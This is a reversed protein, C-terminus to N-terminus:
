VGVFIEVREHQSPDHIEYDAEYRRDLPLEWIQQWARVLAQPQEGEAVRHAFRGGPVVLRELGDPAQADPPVRCGLFFTYPQTHDGEYDCYVAVIAGDLRGAIREPIGEGLFRQWHAGLKEAQDNSARTAIGLLTLDNRIVTEAGM